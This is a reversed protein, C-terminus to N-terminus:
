VKRFDEMEFSIADYGYSCFENVSFPVVSEFARIVIGNSIVCTEQDRGELTLRLAIARKLYVFLVDGM